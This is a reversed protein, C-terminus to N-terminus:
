GDNPADLKVDRWNVTRRAEIDKLGEQIGKMLEPCNLVEQTAEWEALRQIIQMLAEVDSDSLGDILTKTQDKVESM